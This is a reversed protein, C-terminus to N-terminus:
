QAWWLEEQKLLEDLDAELQKIKSICDKSPIDIKLSELTQQLNRIRSPIDGYKDKSWRHLQDLTYQLKTTNFGIFNHWSNQVIKPVRKTRLGFNNL